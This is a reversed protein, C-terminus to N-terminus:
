SHAFTRVIHEFTCCFRHDFHDFRLHNADTKHYEFHLNAYEFDTKIHQVDQSTPLVKVTPPALDFPPM